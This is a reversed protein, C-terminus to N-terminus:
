PGLSKALHLQWLCPWIWLLSPRQSIGTATFQGGAANTKAREATMNITAM